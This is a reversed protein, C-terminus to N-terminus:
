LQAFSLWISLSNDLFRLFVLWSQGPSSGLGNLYSLGPFSFRLEDLTANKRPCAPFLGHILCHPRILIVIAAVM